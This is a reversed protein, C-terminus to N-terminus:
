AARRDRALEEFYAWIRDLCRIITDTALPQDYEAIIVTRMVAREHVSLLGEIEQWAAIADKASDAQCPECRISLGCVDCPKPLSDESRPEVVRGPADVAALYRAHRRAYVQATTYRHHGIGHDGDRAREPGLAGSKLLRGIPSGFEAHHAAEVLGHPLGLVRIRAQRAVETAQRETEAEAAKTSAQRAALAKKSRSPQGSATRPVDSRPRGAGKRKKLKPKSM